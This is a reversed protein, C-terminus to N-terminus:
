IERCSWSLDEVEWVDNRCSAASIRASANAGAGLTFRKAHQTAARGANCALTWSIECRLSRECTSSLRAEIAVESLDDDFFEVCSDVDIKERPAASM